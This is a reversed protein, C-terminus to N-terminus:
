FLCLCTRVKFMFTHFCAEKKQIAHARIAKKVRANHDPQGVDFIYSKKTPDRPYIDMMFPDWVFLFPLRHEPAEYTHIRLSLPTPSGLSLYDHGNM